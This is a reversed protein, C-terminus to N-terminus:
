MDTRYQIGKYYPSDRTFGVMKDVRKAIRNAMIHLYHGMTFGVILDITYHGRTITMVVAEFFAVMMAFLFLTNAKQKRLECACIVAFGVHGSYFFDSTRGYPVALSPFGPYDWIYDDPFKMIFINQIVGRSFYLLFCAIVPRLSNGLVAYRTLLLVMVVDMCMSSVIELIHRAVDNDRFYINVGSTAEHVKDTMCPVEFAPVFLNTAANVISLTLAFAAIGIRIWMQKRQAANRWRVTFEEKFSMPPLGRTFSSSASGSSATGAGHSGIPRNHSPLLSEEEPRSSM